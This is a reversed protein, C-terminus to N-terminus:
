CKKTKLAQKQNAAENSARQPLASPPRQPFLAQGNPAIANLANYVSDRGVMGKLSKLAQETSFNQGPKFGTKYLGELTRVVYTLKRQLLAERVSNPLTQDKQFPRLGKEVNQLRAPRSFVSRITAYAERQRLHPRENVVGSQSVHLAILARRTQSQDWGHDRAYM